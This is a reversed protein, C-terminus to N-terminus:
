LQGDSWDWNEESAAETSDILKLLELASRFPVTKNKEAWTVQGQWSANQRYQIRVIFTGKEGQHKNMAEENLVISREGKQKIRTEPVSATGQPARRGSSKKRFSRNEMSAQPYGLWNYFGELRELLEGANQFSVPKEQYRTYFRGSWDGSEFKDCCIRVISSAAISVYENSM